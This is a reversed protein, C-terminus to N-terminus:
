KKYEKGGVKVKSKNKDFDDGKNKNKMIIPIMPRFSNYIASYFKWFYRLFYSIKWIQHLIIKQEKM